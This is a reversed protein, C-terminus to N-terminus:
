IVFMKREKTSIIKYVSLCFFLKETTFLCKKEGLYLLPLHSAEKEDTKLPHVENVEMVVLATHISLVDLDTM